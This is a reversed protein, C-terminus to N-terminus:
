WSGWPSGYFTHSRPQAASPTIIAPAAAAIPLVKGSPAIKRSGTAVAQGLTAAYDNVASQAPGEGFMVVLLDRKQPLTLQDSMIAALQRRFLKLDDIYIRQAQANEPWRDTFRDNNCKPNRLDILTNSRDARELAELIVAAITDLADSISSGPVSTHGSFCAMMVSPPLRQGKRSAYRMNRNRKLLQLAVVSASKGAETSSHGPVPKVEAEALVRMQDFALARKRYAQEFLLDVPTNANFWDCFAWSNMTLYRHHTAPEGPKAHFIHSRRPDHADLLESPTIDLHMGDAYRVTICRTQREVMGHYMSGPPGNIAEFLLDLVQAPTLAGHLLLEAVIDIDFGDDRRHSKITSRIAMSGQPYFWTVKDHLPSDPREAHKSVAAYRDVALQHLSPPLEIRVATEALLIEGVPAGPGLPEILLKNM